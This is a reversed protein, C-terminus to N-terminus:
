CNEVFDKVESINVSTQVPYEIRLSILSFQIQIVYKYVQLNSIINIPGNVFNTKIYM